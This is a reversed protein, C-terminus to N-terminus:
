CSIIINDICWFDLIENIEKETPKKGQQYIAFAFKNKHKIFGIFNYDVRVGFVDELRRVFTYMENFVDVVLVNPLRMGVNVIQLESM